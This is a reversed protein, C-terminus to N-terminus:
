TYLMGKQCVKIWLIHAVEWIKKVGKLHFELQNYNINAAIATLSWNALCKEEFKLQQM